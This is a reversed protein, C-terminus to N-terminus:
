IRTLWAEHKSDEGRVAAFYASQLELTVEGASGEGIQRHDIERIPTVEAATGTLFAEDATWLFDRTFREERVQYGRERALEIVTDRTIGALITGAAPPTWIAGNTVAFVNEGSAESVYGNTDLLIAEDFGLRKAEWKAFISNVYQGVVKAKAMNSNVHGRSFSSIKARIGRKLGDEGLYAGWEWTSMATRVPNDSAGLGMRGAGLFVLPRIYCSRFNNRRVLDVATQCLEDVGYPLDLLCIRASDVLRKMHEPLRFIAADGDATEYCRIGEFIGLGYHLTHTLLPVSAEAAPVLEGDLWTVEPEKGM